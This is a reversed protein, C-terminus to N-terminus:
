FKAFKDKTAGCLPCREPADGVVTWGCYPCVYIDGVEYDKGAEVAEKAKSYLESHVKEAELAWRFSKEANEEKQEKAVAEFSPYMEEVEYNEGNIADQLNEATSGLQGLIRFHHFAHIEEAFAIARFLRAVNKYGEEEAKKAYLIYKMHAQSEGAFAEKLFRESMKKM